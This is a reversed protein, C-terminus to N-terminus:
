ARGREVGVVLRSHCDCRICIVKCMRAGLALVDVCLVIENALVDSLAGQCKAVDTCQLVDGIDEGLRQNASHEVWKKVGNHSWIWECGSTAVTFYFLVWGQVRVVM